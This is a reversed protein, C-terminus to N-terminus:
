DDDKIRKNNLKVFAARSPAPTIADMGKIGKWLIQNLILDPVKDEKTFDYKESLQTLM